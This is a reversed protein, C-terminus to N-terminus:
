RMSPPFTREQAMALFTQYQDPGIQLARAFDRSWFQSATVMDLRAAKVEHAWQAIEGITAREDIGENLTECNWDRTGLVAKLLLLRESKSPPGVPLIFDFRRPRRIARDIRQIDNTAIIYVNRGWDHLAKFWPLMVDTTLGTLWGAYPSSDDRDLVLLELEDFLLVAESLQTLMRFLRDITAFVRDTGDQLFVGPGLRVIPWNGLGKAISEAVSTKSTGPPGFLIIGNQELKQGRSIKERAPQLLRGELEAVWRFGGVKLDSWDYAELPPEASLELLARNRNLTAMFSKYAHALDIVACNYWLDIDNTDVFLDTRYLRVGNSFQVYHASIWDFTKLLLPECKLVADRGRVSELLYTLVDISSAGIAYDSVRIVSSRAYAPLVGTAASVLSLLRDIREDDLADPTARLLVGVAFLIYNPPLPSMRGKSLHAEASYLLRDAWQGVKLMLTAPARELAQLSQLGLLPLLPHASTGPASFEETKEILFSVATELHAPVLDSIGEKGLGFLVKSTTYAQLESDPNGWISWGPNPPTDRLAAVLFVQAKSIFPSLDPVRRGTEVMRAYNVASKINPLGTTNQGHRLLFPMNDTSEFAHLIQMASVGLPFPHLPSSPLTPSM